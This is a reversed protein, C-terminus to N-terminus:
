CVHCDVFSRPTLPFDMLRTNKGVLRWGHQNGLAPRKIHYALCDVAGLKTLFQHWLNDKFPLNMIPNVVVFQGFHPVCRGFIRERLQLALAGLTTTVVVHMWALFFCVGLGWILLWKLFSCVISPVLIVRHCLIVYFGLLYVFWM